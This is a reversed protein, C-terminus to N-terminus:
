RSTTIRTTALSEWSQSTSLTEKSRTRTEEEVTEWIISFDSIKYNVSLQPQHRNNVIETHRPIEADVM